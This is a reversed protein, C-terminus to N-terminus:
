EQCLIGWMSSRMSSKHTKTRVEGLICGEGGLIPFEWQPSLYKVGRCLFHGMGLFSSGMSSEPKSCKPESNVLFVEGFNFNRMFSRPTHLSIATNGASVTENRERKKLKQSGHALISFWLHDNPPFNIKDGSNLHLHQYVLPFKFDLFLRM